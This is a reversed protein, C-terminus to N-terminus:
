YISVRVEDVKSVALVLVGINNCIIVTPESQGWETWKIM